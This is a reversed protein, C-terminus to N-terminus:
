KQQMLTSVLDTCDNTENDDRILKIAANENHTASMVQNVFSTYDSESFTSSGTSGFVGIKTNSPTTKLYGDISSSVQGWYMPGGAVIISYDSIKSAIRSRVGALDVTYGNAQLYDAIKTADQKAAGSFGPDYVVLARGHSTSAPNLTKTDIAGYSSFDFAFAAFVSVVLVVIVVLVVMGIKLMKKM